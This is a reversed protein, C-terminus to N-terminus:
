PMVPNAIDANKEHQKGIKKQLCVLNAAIAEDVLQQVHEARNAHDQRQDESEARDVPRREQHLQGPDDNTYEADHM